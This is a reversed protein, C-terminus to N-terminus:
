NYASLAFITSALYINLSVKNRKYGFCCTLVRLRRNWKKNTKALQKARNPMETQVITRAAAEKQCSEINNPPGIPITTKSNNACIQIENLNKENKNSM